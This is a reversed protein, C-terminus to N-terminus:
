MDGIMDAMLEDFAMGNVVETVEHEYNFITKIDDATGMIQDSGASTVSYHDEAFSLTMPNGWHDNEEVPVPANANLEQISEPSRDNTRSFHMVPIRYFEQVVTTLQINQKEEWVKGRAEVTAKATRMAAFYLVIMLCIPALCVVAGVCLLTITLPRWRGSRSNQKEAPDDDVLEAMLPESDPTQDDADPM